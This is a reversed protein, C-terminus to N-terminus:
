QRILRSLLIALWCASSLISSVYNRSLYPSFPIWNRSLITKHQRLLWLMLHSSLLIFLNRAFLIHIRCIEAVELSRFRSIGSRSCAHFKRHNFYSTRISTSTTRARPKHSQLIKRKYTYEIENKENVEILLNIYNWLESQIYALRLRFGKKHTSSYLLTLYLETLTDNSKDSDCKFRCFDQTYFPTYM